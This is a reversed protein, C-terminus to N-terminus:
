GQLCGFDRERWASEARAELGTARAVYEATELARRLDSARLLDLDGETALHDALAEAQARGRETLPTPAWGQVRGARNWTTQGHRVLLVRGM